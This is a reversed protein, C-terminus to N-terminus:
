LQNTRRPIFVREKTLGGGVPLYVGNGKLDLNDTLSYLLEMSSLLEADNLKKPITRETIVMIAFIGIFIAGFGINLYITGKQFIILYIGIIIFLSGMVKARMPPNRLAHRINMRDEEKKPEPFLM